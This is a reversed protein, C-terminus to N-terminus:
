PDNKLTFTYNVLRLGTGSVPTLHIQYIRGSPLSVLKDIEGCTLPGWGSLPSGAQLLEVALTSNGTCSLSFTLLADPGSISYPTFEIWDGPDGQPESVQDSYSIQQTGAISFTVRIAPSASSDGDAYAPGITPTPTLAPGSATAAAGPTVINGYDDLVPLNNASDTQVYQATVWGHGDPGSPYEMQFWSATTNKGTLFIVQNPEIIGLTDFATGPGSRVNLRQLVLGMPGSPTPTAELPIEVGSPLTVYPSAVWGKGQAASPYLIQYWSGDSTRYLIQVKQGADLQGLSANSTGPGSRVNVKITLTGEFILPTATPTPPLPTSTLTPLYTATETPSLTSSPTEVTGPEACASLYTILIVLILAIKKMPVSELVFSVQSLHIATSNRYNDLCHHSTPPYSQFIINLFDTFTGDNSRTLLLM